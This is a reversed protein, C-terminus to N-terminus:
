PLVEAGHGLWKVGPISGSDANDRCFQDPVAEGGAVVGQFAAESEDPGEGAPGSEIVLLQQLVQPVLTVQHLRADFDLLVGAAAAGVQGQVRGEVQQGLPGDVRVLHILNLDLHVEVRERERM